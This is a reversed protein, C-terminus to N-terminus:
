EKGVLDWVHDALTDKLTGVHKALDGREIILVQILNQFEQVLRAFLFGFYSPLVITAM